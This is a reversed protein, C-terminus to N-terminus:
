HRKWKEQGKASVTLRELQSPHDVALAPGHDLTLVGRLRIRQGELAAIDIGAAYFANEDRADITATFDTSWKGGFNLFHTRRTRGISRVVGEIFTFRGVRNALGPDGAAYVQDNTWFGRRNRRAEAEAALLPALCAQPMKAPAVFAQGALVWDVALWNGTEADFLHGLQRGWRDSRLTLPYFLLDGSGSSLQAFGDAFVIDAQRLM